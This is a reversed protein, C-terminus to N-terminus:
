FTTQELDQIDFDLWKSIEVKVISVICPLKELKNVSM